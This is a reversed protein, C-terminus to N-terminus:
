SGNEATKGPSELTEFTQIVSSGAKDGGPLKFLPRGGGKLKLGNVVVRVNLAKNLPNSLAISVKRKNLQMLLLCPQNVSVSTKELKFEGAERFVAAVVHGLRVAQLKPQNSIVKLIESEIRKVTEPMAKIKVDPIVVYCYRSNRTQAGHDIWLKFVDMGATDFKKWKAGIGAWNGRQVDNTLCVNNGVNLFVYGVGNHWVWQIKGLDCNSQKKLPKTSNSTYVPGNLLCQNATTAVTNKTPCDIGSGLCVYYDDGFLWTKYATLKDEKLDMAALGYMGNSVGGVFSTKGRRRVTKPNMPTSKQEVTTGPIKQWDWVPFIDYYEKGTKYLLNAGDALHHSKKGENNCLESRYLRKSYMRVSATYAPRHHMMYDACWFHRNGKLPKARSDGRAVYVLNQYAKKDSDGMMVLFEAASASHNATRGPRTIERGIAGYEFTGGHIMWRSGELIFDRLIKMQEAPISFKTDSSVYVLKALEAIYSQGYGGSYLLPGHFLFSFDPQVGDKGPRSIHIERWLRDFAEAVTQPSKEFLGRMIQVRLGWALNAGTWWSKKWDARKLVAITKALHKPQAQDGLLLFTKSLSFSHGLQDWWWNGSKPDRKFWYDLALDIKAKLKANGYQSSDKSTFARAMNGIRGLHRMAGWNVKQASIYDVDAWSGDPRLSQAAEAALKSIKAMGIKKLRTREIDILRQRLTQMDRQSSNGADDQRSTTTTTKMTAGSQGLAKRGGVFFVSVFIGVIIVISKM